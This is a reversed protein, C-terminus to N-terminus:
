EDKYMFSYFGAFIHHQSYCFASCFIHMIIFHFYTLNIYIIWRQVHLQLFWCFTTNAIFFVSSFIHM